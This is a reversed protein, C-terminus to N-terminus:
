TRSNKGLVNVKGLPSISVGKGMSISQGAEFSYILVRLQNDQISYAMEMGEAYQGIVPIGPKIGDYEFVMFGAGIPCDADTYVDINQGNNKIELEVQQSNPTLKPIMTADGIIVRILYVLDAITLTYGDANVDSAAIQGDVNVTFAALNYIFYNTYVVADAIEYPVGNLNLDGRADISDPHVIKVGGNHFYVCRVPSIKDGVLCSDVAGMGPIRSSEPFLNDDYEDWILEGFANYIKSEIFLKSGSPESFANDGCDGWYFNIPLFLGGLNQDNAVQMNMVAITGQPM